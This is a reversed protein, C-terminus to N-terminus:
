IQSPHRKAIRLENHFDIRARLIGAWRFCVMSLLFIVSCREKSLTEEEALGKKAAIEYAVLIDDWWGYWKTLSDVFATKSTEDPNRLVHLTWWQALQDVADLFPPENLPLQDYALIVTDMTDLFSSHWNALEPAAAPAEASHQYSPLSPALKETIM